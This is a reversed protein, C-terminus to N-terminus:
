NDHPKGGVYRYEPQHIFEPLAPGKPPLPALSRPGAVIVLTRRPRNQLGILALALAAILLHFFM